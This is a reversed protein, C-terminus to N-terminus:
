SWLRRACYKCAPPSAGEGSLYEFNRGNRPIRAVCLGPGLMVNAGKSIFEQGIGAGWERLASPDWTAAMALGSPWATSSGPPAIGRARFGQPGDNMNLPPIGLRSNPAVNGVYACRASSKCTHSENGSPGHLMVLKEDLTMRSVLARARENPSAACVVAGIMMMSMTRVARCRWEIM